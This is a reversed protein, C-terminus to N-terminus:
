AAASAAASSPSRRTSGSRPSFFAGCTPACRSARRASGCTSAAKASKRGSPRTTTSRAAPKSRRLQDAHARRNGSRGADADLEGMIIKLLTSKGVGNRGVIGLRQGAALDLNVDDFLMRGGLEMGVDRLEIVRNALKPAPPIILEVDLEQEPGEQAAM